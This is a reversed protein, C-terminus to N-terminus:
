GDAVELGPAPEPIFRGGNWVVPLTPLRLPGHLPHAVDAFFKQAIFQPDGALDSLQWVASLPVGSQKAAAYIDARTRAAFWPAIRANIAAPAAQRDGRAAFAPGALVPDDFLRLLIPWDKETYVFATHGDACALVQFEGLAGPRIPSRGTYLREAFTKWNTWLAVDFVSVDVTEAVGDNALAAVMGTFAALGATYACQHGGLKVPPGDPEGVIDMLGSLALVDIQEIPPNPFQRDALPSVLVRVRPGDGDILAADDTLVADAAAILRTKLEVDDTAFSRKSTNLFQFLASREAPRGQPLFPPMYRLPDGASPEIKIVEAGLDAAIKGAMATALRTMVSADAANVEVIRFHQLPRQQASM